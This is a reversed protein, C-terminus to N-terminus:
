VVRSETDADATTAGHQCQARTERTHRQPAVPQSGGCGAAVLVVTPHRGLTVPETVPLPPGVVGLPLPQVGGVLLSLDGALDPVALAKLVPVGLVALSM